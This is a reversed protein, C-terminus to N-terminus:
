SCSHSSDPCAIVQASKDFKDGTVYDVPLVVEVGKSKAKDMLAQVKRSGEEDFLSKGIQLLPLDIVVQGVSPIGVEVGEVTKKFTFAM